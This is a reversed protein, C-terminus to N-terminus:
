GVIRLTSVAEVTLVRANLGIEDPTSVIYTGATEVEGREIASQLCGRRTVYGRSMVIKTDVGGNDLIKAIYTTM